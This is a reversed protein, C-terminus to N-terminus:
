PQRLCQDHTGQGQRRTWASGIPCPLTLACMHRPWHNRGQVGHGPPPQAARSRNTVSGQRAAQGGRHSTYVGNRGVGDDAVKGPATAYAVLSGVPAEMLALGKIVSKWRRAYPNNRCADLIILNLRYGAEEMRALVCEAPVARYRVDAESDIQAKLPLMYNQGQAQMGHGSFYFLGVDGSQGPNAFATIAQEMERQTINKKLTVTFGLEGLTSAMAEADNVPNRLPAEDYAANGIVLARGRPTATAPSVFLSVILAVLVSWCYAM